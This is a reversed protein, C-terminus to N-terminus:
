LDGRFGVCRVEETPNSECFRRLEVAQQQQPTMATCGAFGVAATIAALLTTLTRIM